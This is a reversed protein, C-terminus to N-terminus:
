TTDFPVALKFWAKEVLSMMASLFSSSLFCICVLVPPPTKLKIKRRPFDTLSVKVVDRCIQWTNQLYTTTFPKDPFLEIFFTNKFTLSFTFVKTMEHEYEM